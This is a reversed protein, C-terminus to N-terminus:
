KQYTIKGRRLTCIDDSMSLNNYANTFFFFNHFLSIRQNKINQNNISHVTLRCSDM